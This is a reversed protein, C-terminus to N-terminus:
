EKDEWHRASPTVPACGIGHNSHHHQEHGGYTAPVNNCGRLLVEKREAVGKTKKKSKREEAKREIGGCGLGKGGYGLRGRTKREKM